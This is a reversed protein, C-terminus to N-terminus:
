LIAKIQHKNFKITDETPRAQTTQKSTTPSYKDKNEIWVRNIRDYVFVPYWGYSYVIYFKDTLVGSLNSGEFPTLSKTYESANRNAIKM